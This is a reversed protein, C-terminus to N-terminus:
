TYRVEMVGIRPNKPYLPNYNSFNKIHKIYKKKVEKESYGEQVFKGIEIRKKSSSTYVHLVFYRKKM